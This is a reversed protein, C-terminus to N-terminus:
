RDHRGRAKGPAVQARLGAGRERGGVRSKHGHFRHRPAPEPEVAVGSEREIWQKIRNADGIRSFKGWSDLLVIIVPRAAIRAQMVLCRGAEAIYGTKSLGIDWKGARVLGNSNNFSLMRPRSRASEVEVAHSSTTTFDRILEHRYGAQVLRVLDEATSVNLPNLGTPDVFRSDRMGLERARRNMADVFAGVGGPWHHGLASAARNESAMLALKLMERRTLQTGIRLRSGTGKVFDIDDETVEVIEDLPQQADLVVVATMLKTISAIPMVAQTNKAYLPTGNEQDVVLVANSALGAPAGSLDAATAGTGAFLCVALGVLGQRWARRM